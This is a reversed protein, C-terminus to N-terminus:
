FFFMRFIFKRNGKINIGHVGIYTKMFIKFLCVDVDCGTLLAKSLYGSESLGPLSM